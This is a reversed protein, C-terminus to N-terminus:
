RPPHYSYSALAPFQLAGGSDAMSRYLSTFGTQMEPPDIFGDGNLDFAGFCVRMRQEKTATPAISSLGRVFQALTVCQGMPVASAGWMDPVPVSVAGGMVFANEQARAFSVQGVLTHIM